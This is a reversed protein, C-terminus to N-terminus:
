VAPHRTHWDTRQQFAHAARLLLDENLHHAVLQFGIPMGAKDVGGQLTVTPQGTFNFPATFRLVASTDVKEMAGMDATLPTVNPSVPVILLDIAEFLAAMEGSFDRRVRYGEVIIRADLDQAMALLMRLQPAYDGARSPYTEAHAAAAEAITLPLWADILRRPSPFDIPVRRAGCGLLVEVAAEIVAMVQPDTGDSLFDEDIGLRLGSVGLGIRGLYDPVPASLSTPDRPDHGAVVGLLAAADAANRAM